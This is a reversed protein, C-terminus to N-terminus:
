QHLRIVLLLMLVKRCQMLASVSAAMVAAVILTFVKKM